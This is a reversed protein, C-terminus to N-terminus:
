PQRLIEIQERHDIKLAGRRDVGGRLRVLKGELSAPEVGSMALRKVRDGEVFVELAGGDLILTQGFADTRVDTVRGEVLTLGREHRMEVPLLVGYAPLAWLGRRARRAVAEADLMAGALAVNDSYTRVRAAGDKLLAEQLWQGGQALRVQALAREYRDRRAGGYFLRVAEGEALGALAARSQAAYPRDRRPAEIGVLRVVLGSELVLTDGSRVEVVRGSEGSALQDLGRQGCGALLLILAVTLARIM